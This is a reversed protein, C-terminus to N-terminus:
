NAGFLDRRIRAPLDAYSIVEDLVQHEVLDACTTDQLERMAEWGALLDKSGSLLSRMISEHMVDVQLREAIGYSAIGGYCKPIALSNAGGYGRGNIVGIAPMSFNLIQETVSILKEITGQNQGDFRPDIGPTDLMVVLPLQLAAFLKLAHEYLELSRFCFMNNAQDPPNILVALHQGEFELIFVRLRDDYGVFLELGKDSIHLLSDITAISAKYFNRAKFSMDQSPEPHTLRPLPLAHQLVTALELAHAMAQSVDDSIHHILGTKQYQSVVGAVQDFALKEGFFLEFVEPGTLNLTASPDAAIRYHGLSFLIAGMGLCRGQCLTILLNNERFRNLAPVLGFVKNFINRGEMFRLGLSNFVFVLPTNQLSLEALFATLRDSSAGGFSAGKVRFDCWAVAIAKGNLEGKVLWLGDAALRSAKNTGAECYLALCGPDLHKAIPKLFRAEGDGIELWHYDPNAQAHLPLVEAALNSKHNANTQINALNEM